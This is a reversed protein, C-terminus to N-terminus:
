NDTNQLLHGWRHMPPHKTHQLYLGAVVTDRLENLGEGQGAEESM